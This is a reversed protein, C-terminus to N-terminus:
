GSFTQPRQARPLGRVVLAYSTQLLERLEDDPVTGDLDIRVWHRKALYPADGVASPYAARLEAGDEPALELAVAGDGPFAFVKGPPGGVKAVVGGGWPADPWAGPLELCHALVREEDLRDEDLRDEDV